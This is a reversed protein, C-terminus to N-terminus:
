SPTWRYAVIREPDDAAAIPLLGLSEGTFLRVLVTDAMARPSEFAYAGNGSTYVVVISTANNQTERRTGNVIVRVPMGNASMSTFNVTLNGCELLEGTRACNQMELNALSGISFPPDYAHVLDAINNTDKLLREDVVIVGENSCNERQALLTTDGRRPQLQEPANCLMASWANLAESVNHTLFARGTLWYLTRPTLGKGDLFPERKAAYRWLHGTDWWTIIRADPLAQADIERGVSVMADQMQPLVNRQSTQLNPILLAAIIIVCSAFVAARKWRQKGVMSQVGKSAQQFGIGALIAAPPLAYYMFRLSIYTAVTLLAFWSLITLRKFSSKKVNQWALLAFVVLAIGFMVNGGFALALLPLTGQMLEAVQRTLVGQQPFLVFWINRKWFFAFAILATVVIAILMASLRKNTRDHLWRLALLAATGAAVVVLIYPAGHWALSFLAFVLIALAATIKAKKQQKAHWADIAVFVILVFLVSFLLNIAQTDGMGAATAAFFRHQLALILGAFFAAETSGTVRRALFFFATLTLLGFVFPLFFAADSATVLANSGHLIRYAETELAVYLNWPQHLTGAAQALFYYSDFDYVYPLGYETRYLSQYNQTLAQLEAPTGDPLAHRVQDDIAALKTTQWLSIGGVALIILLSLLIAQRETNLWRGM